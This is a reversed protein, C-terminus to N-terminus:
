RTTKNILDLEWPFFKLVFLTGNKGIRNCTMEQSKLNITKIVWKIRDNSRHYVINGLNFEEAKKLGM